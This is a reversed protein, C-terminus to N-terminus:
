SLADLNIEVMEVLADRWFAIPFAPRPSGEFAVITLDTLKPVLVQKKMADLVEVLTRDILQDWIGKFWISLKELEPTLKLLEVFALPQFACENFALSRLQCGSRDILSHIARIM